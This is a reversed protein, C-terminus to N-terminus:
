SELVFIGRGRTGFFVVGPRDFSAGMVGPPGFTREPDSINQFSRGLDGSRFVGAAGAQTGYFYLTPVDCGAIPAGFCFLKAREVGPIRAFRLGGDTSRYLGADGLWLWLDGEHGPAAALGHTSQLLDGSPQPLGRAVVGFSAGGDRSRYLSGADYYYFVGDAAGDATLPRHLLELAGGPHDPGTPLGQCDRWSRGGDRTFQASANARVVVFSDVDHPAIAVRLPYGKRKDEVPWPTASTWSQGGDVSIAIAAYPAWERSYTARVIKAPRGRSLKTSFAIDYTDMTAPSKTRDRLKRTPFEDLGRDHLFGSVDYLGSLVPMGPPACVAYVVTEELNRTVPTFLTTGGSLTTRHVAYGSVMWVQNSRHPDFALGSPSQLLLDPEMWPVRDDARAHLERWTAGADHSEFLREKWRLAAGTAVLVHAPDRPDTALAGYRTKDGLPVSHHWRTGDHSSVGSGHTVWLRGDSAAEMRLPHTPAGPMPGFSVGADNSVYIGVGYVSAFVRRPDRAHCAVATVGGLLEGNVYQGQPNPTIGEFSDVRRFTQGGDGSRWLGDRTTGYFLLKSDHPSVILREGAWRFWENGGGRVRWAEDTLVRWSTGRDVSKLLAGPRPWWDQSYPGTAM